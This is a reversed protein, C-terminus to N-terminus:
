VGEAGVIKKVGGGRPQAGEGSFFKTNGGKFHHIKICEPAHKVGVTIAVIINM